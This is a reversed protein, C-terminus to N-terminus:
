PLICTMEDGVLNGKALKEKLNQGFLRFIVIFGLEGFIRSPLRDVQLDNFLEVTRAVIIAQFVVGVVMLMTSFLRESETTPFVDNGLLM